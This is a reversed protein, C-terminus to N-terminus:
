KVILKKTFLINGTKTDKAVFYYIGANQEVNMSNINKYNSILKGTIDYLSINIKESYSFNVIGGKNVPNPYITEFQSGSEYKFISSTKDICFSRSKSGTSFNNEYVITDGLSNTILAYGNGWIGNFGDNASDFLNFDFCSDYLCLTQNYIVGGNTQTYPGGSEISTSKGSENITWTTEDGYDDTLLKLTLIIPTKNVTIIKSINNNIANQDSTGNVLTISYDIQNIGNGLTLSPANVQIVQNKTISGTWPITGLINGNVSYNITFSTVPLNGLNKIILQSLVISDSCLYSKDSNVNLLALDYYFNSAKMDLGPISLNGSNDPDLWPKLQNSNGSIANWSVSFKGYYDESNNGCAANGGHLQGIIQQFENFLPSGSSGGETTGFDWDQVTWHTSGNTTYYGSTIPSDSDISIKMVDGDPHHICTSVASPTNSRDWGAYYVEYSSPPTNNLEFLHFDSNSHTAKSTAGSMSKTLVGDANPSCNPSEYNFIFISNTQLGCHNATLVYPTSDQRVNNILAGSCWRTNNARLIMVISRKVDQWNNGENCNININCSGSSGFAKSAKNHISRYGYVIGSINLKLNSIENEPVVLELTISSGKIPRIAFEENEKNNTQTIAGLVDSHDDNYIYLKANNSLKFKDFNLNISLADKSKIKLYWVKNGSAKDEWTGSNVIGLDVKQEIGFRWPLDKIADEILDEKTIEILDPKPVLVSQINISSTSSIESFSPPLENTVVQSFSANAVLISIIILNLRFINKM